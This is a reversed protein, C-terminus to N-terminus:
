YADLILSPQSRRREGAEVKKDGGLARRKEKKVAQFKSDATEQMFRGLFDLDQRSM